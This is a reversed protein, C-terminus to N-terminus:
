QLGWEKLYSATPEGYRHTDVPTPTPAAVGGSVGAEALVRHVVFGRVWQAATMNADAALRRIRYHTSPDVDFWVQCGGGLDDTGRLTSHSIMSGSQMMYEVSEVRRMGMHDCWRRLAGAHAPQLRTCIRM